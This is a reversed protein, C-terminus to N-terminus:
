LPWCLLSCCKLFSPKRAAYLIGSPQILMFRWFLAWLRLGLLGTGAALAVYGNHTDYIRDLSYSLPYKDRIYSVIFIDPFEQKIIKMYAGPSFGLLAPKVGSFVCNFYDKWISFRNNSVDGHVDPRTLIDDIVADSVDEDPLGPQPQNTEDQVTGAWSPIKVLLKEASAYAGLFVM